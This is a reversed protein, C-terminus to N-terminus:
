PQQLRLLRNIEETLRNVEAWDRRWRELNDRPHQMYMATTVFVAHRKALQDLHEPTMVGSYRVCTRIHEPVDHRM